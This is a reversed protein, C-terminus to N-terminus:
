NIGSDNKCFITKDFIEMVKDPSFNSYANWDNKSSTINRINKLINDLEEKSNYIICKEGLIKIHETDGSLSTIVPKNLSSFEGISLGFTEGMKRAHIMANCTNIFKTKYELSINKECYIIREHEFFKNTNMFLFYINDDISLIQKISDYVYEINFESFGGYRGIIFTDNNKKINVQDLIDGNIKPLYVIHPIVPINTKYKKNLKDSISIYYDGFPSKTKFVCHVITKCNQWIDKNEFNYMKEYRGETLTYFFNINYKQIIEKMEDIANIKIIEFQDQFKKYSDKMLPFKHKKQAFDTFCIIYSKNKLIKENFFAYDYIAVETGRETFHRIFFCINKM